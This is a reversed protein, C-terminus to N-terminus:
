GSIGDKACSRLRDEGINAGVSQVDVFPQDLFSDGGACPRNENHVIGSDRTVHLSDHCDGLLVPEDNHLVRCLADIRSVVAPCEARDTM